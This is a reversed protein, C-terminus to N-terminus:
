DHNKNIEKVLKREADNNVIAVFKCYGIKKIKLEGKDVYGILDSIKVSPNFPIIQETQCM